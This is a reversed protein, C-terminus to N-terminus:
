LPHPVSFLQVSTLLSWLQQRGQASNRPMTETPWREKILSKIDALKMKDVFVKLEIFSCQPLGPGNDKIEAEPADELEIDDVVGDVMPSPAATSPTVAPTFAGSIARELSPIVVPTAPLHAGCAPSAPQVAVVVPSHVGGVAPAPQTAAVPATVVPEVPEQAAAAFDAVIQVTTQLQNQIYSLQGQIDNLVATQNRVVAFLAKIDNHQQLSQTLGHRVEKVLDQQLGIAVSNNRDLMRNVEDFAETLDVSEEEESPFM